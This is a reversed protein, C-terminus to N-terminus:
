LGERLAITAGAMMIERVLDLGPNMRALRAEAGRAGRTSWPFGDQSLIM